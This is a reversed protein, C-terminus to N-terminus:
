LSLCDGLRNVEEEGDYYLLPRDVSRFGFTATFRERTTMTNKM